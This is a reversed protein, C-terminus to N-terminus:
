DNYYKELIEGLDQAFQSWGGPVEKWLYKDNEKYQRITVTRDPFHFTYLLRGTDNLGQKGFTHSVIIRKGSYVVEIDEIMELRSQANDDSDSVENDNQFDEIAKGLEEALQTQGGPVQSWYSSGDDLRQEITFDGTPLHCTYQIRGPTLRDPKYLSHSVNITVGLYAIQIDEMVKKVASFSM